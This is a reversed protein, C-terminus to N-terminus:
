CKLTIPTPFLFGSDMLTLVLSHWGWLISNNHARYFRQLSIVETLLCLEPSMYVKFNQKTLRPVLIPFMGNSLTNVYCFFNLCVQNICSHEQTIGVSSDRINKVITLMYSQIEQSSQGKMKKQFVLSSFNLLVQFDTLSLFYM